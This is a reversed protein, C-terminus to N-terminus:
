MDSFSINERENEKLTILFSSLPATMFMKATNQVMKCTSQGLTESVPIKLWKVLWTKQQKEIRFYM